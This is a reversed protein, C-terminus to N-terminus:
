TRQCNPELSKPILFNSNSTIKKDFKLIIGDANPFQIKTRKILNDRITEYQTGTIFGIEVTGLSDFPLAPRSDTFIFLDQVQIVEATSKKITYQSIQFGFFSFIAIGMLFPFQIKQM